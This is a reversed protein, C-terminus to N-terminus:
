AIRSGAADDGRVALRAAELVVRAEHEYPGRVQQPLEAFVLHFADGMTVHMRDEYLARAAADIERETPSALRGEAYAKRSMLATQMRTLPVILRESEIPYREDLEDDLVGM